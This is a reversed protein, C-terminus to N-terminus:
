ESYFVGEGEHAEIFEYRVTKKLAEELPAPPVFGTSEVHTNLVL